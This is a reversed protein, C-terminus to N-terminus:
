LVSRELPDITRLLQKQHLPSIHKPNQHAARVFAILYTRIQNLPVVEDVFGMQACHIAKSDNEYKEVFKNMSDVIPELPKEDRKAKILKGRYSSVSATGGYMVCIKTLATGLTFINQPSQPGAMVYHSAAMGNRLVITVMPNESQVISRILGQGLALLEAKEAPDGVDIGTTDQFWIIPIADQSCEIIFKAMKKLGEDYLKGGIGRDSQYKPYQVPMAGQVNAITGVLFGDLKVLGCYIEPGYGPKYEMHENDDFIKALVNRVDYALRQNIPFLNYIDEPNLSEKPDNDVRSCDLDYASTMAVHSKLAGIVEEEIDFIKNFFGTYDHHIPAGGPEYRKDTNENIITEAIETSFTQGLVKGEIIGAGGVAMTADKQAFIIDASICHYGGGAINNGFIGALVPIGQLSLEANRYFIRGGSRRGAYLKEQETLKIGSCQILWVLPIRLKEAIDQAQFIKEAHGHIWAGAWIASNSAVVVVYRNSVRGIGTVVGVCGEENNEPNYLTNLPFFNDEDVLLSIREYVTKQKRKHIIEKPIGANKIKETAKAIEEELKKIRIDNDQPAGAVSKHTTNGLPFWQMKKLHKKM